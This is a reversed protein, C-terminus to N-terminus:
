RNAKRKKPPQLLLQLPTLVLQATAELLREVDRVVRRLERPTVVRMHAPHESPRPVGPASRKGARPAPVRARVRKWGNPSPTWIVKREDQAM